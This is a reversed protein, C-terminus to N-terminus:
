PRHKPQRRIAMLLGGGIVGALASGALVGVKAAQLLKIQEFAM